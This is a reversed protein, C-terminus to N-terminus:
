NPVHTGMRLVINKFVEGRQEYDTFMDFSSCGPSLLVVEGDRATDSARAVAQELDPVLEVPCCPDLERAITEAAEGLAILRRVKLHLEAELPKFSSGKHRGGMILVLHGSFSQLARLVSEVTTAKSDNVWTIGEAKVVTELRHPLGTFSKVGRGIAEVPAGCAAATCSAALINELNHEGPLKIEKLGIVRVADGPQQRLWLANDKVFAYSNDTNKLGFWVVPCKVASKARKVIEPDDANLIALDNKNMKGFLRFKASYYDDLSAYRELHDPSLNLLAGIRPHFNKVTHLQFSSIETVVVTEDKLEEVAQCFPRGINGAVQCRIGAAQLIKGILSATTTKGNTGTVAVTPLPSFWYALEIESFVPIDKLEMGQVLELREDIGPSIVIFDSDALRARDHEGLTVQAGLEIVAQCDKRVIEDDRLDSLYVRYGRNLLLHAAAIGSRGAGLVSAAAPPPILPKAKEPRHLPTGDRNM